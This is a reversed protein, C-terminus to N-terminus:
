KKSGPNQITWLIPGSLEVAQGEPCKDMAQQIRLTDPKTEDVESLAPKLVTCSKPITPEVVQRTDQALLPLAALLLLLKM